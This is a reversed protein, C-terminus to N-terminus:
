WAEDDVQPIRAFPARATVGVLVLRPRRCDNCGPCRPYRYGGGAAPEVLMRTGECAAPVLSSRAGHQAGGCTCDCPGGPRALQCSGSACDDGAEDAVATLHRPPAEETAPAALEALRADREALAREVVTAVWADATTWDTRGERVAQAARTRASDIREQCARYIAAEPRNGYLTDTETWATMQM